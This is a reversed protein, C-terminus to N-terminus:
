AGRVAALREQLLALAGDGSREEAELALSVRLRTIPREREASGRAELLTGECRLQVEAAVPTPALPLALLLPPTLLAALLSCRPALGAMLQAFSELDM